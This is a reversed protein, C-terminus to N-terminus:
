PNVSQTRHLSLVEARADSDERFPGRMVSTTTTAGPMRVGRMEMCLHRATTIVAIGDPTLARELFNAVEETIREQTQPREAFHRVTRALKSLGVIEADPLYAITAVGFFPIFHHECLSYFRIGHQVVIQDHDAEFTTVNFPEDDRAFDRYFRAVREPTDVVDDSQPDRGLYALLYRVHGAIRCEARGLPEHEKPPPGDTYDYVEAPTEDTFEGSEM